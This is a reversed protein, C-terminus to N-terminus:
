MQLWSGANAMFCSGSLPTIMNSDSVLSYHVVVVLSCQWVYITSSCDLFLDLAYPWPCPLCVTVNMIRTLNTVVCNFSIVPNLQFIIIVYASISFLQCTGNILVVASIFLM